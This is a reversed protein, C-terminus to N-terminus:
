RETLHKNGATILVSIFTSVHKDFSQRAEIMAELLGVRIDGDDCENDHGGSSLRISYLRQLALSNYLLQSVGDIIDGLLNTFTDKLLGRSVVPVDRGFM